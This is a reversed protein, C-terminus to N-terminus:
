ASSPCGYYPSGQIVKVPGESVDSAAFKQSEKEVTSNFKTSDPLSDSHSKLVEFLTSSHLVSM